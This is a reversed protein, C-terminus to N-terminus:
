WHRIVLVVTMQQWDTDAKLTDKDTRVDAETNCDYVDARYQEDKETDLEYEEMEDTDTGSYSSTLM